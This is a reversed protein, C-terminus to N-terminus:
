IVPHTQPKSTAISQHTSRPIQFFTSRTDSQCQIHSNSPPKLMFQLSNYSCSIYQYSSPPRIFSSAAPITLCILLTPFFITPQNTRKLTVRHSTETIQQNVSQPPPPSPPSLSPPSLPVSLSLYLQFLSSM